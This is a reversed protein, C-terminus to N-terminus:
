RVLMSIDCAIEGYYGRLLISRLLTTKGIYDLFVKEIETGRLSLPTTKSENRSRNLSTLAERM